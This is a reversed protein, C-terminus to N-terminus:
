RNLNRLNIFSSCSVLLGLEKPTWAFAIFNTVVSMEFVVLEYGFFINRSYNNAIRSVLHITKFM